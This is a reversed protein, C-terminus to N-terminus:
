QLTKKPLSEDGWCFVWKDCSDSWERYASHEECYGREHDENSKWQLCMCCYNIPPLKDKMHPMDPM